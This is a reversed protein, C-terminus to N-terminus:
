GGGCVRSQKSISDYLRAQRSKGPNAGEGRQTMELISFCGKSLGKQSLEEKTHLKGLEPGQSHATPLRAAGM